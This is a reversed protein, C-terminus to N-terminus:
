QDQGPFCKEDVGVCRVGSLDSGGRLTDVAVAVIRWLRNPIERLAWTVEAMSMSRILALVM